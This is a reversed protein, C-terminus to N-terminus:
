GGMPVRDYAKKFDIWGVSLTRLGKFRADTIVMKDVALCDVCGRAGRRLTRQEQPLLDNAEVHATLSDALVATAFKYQTTLCAIPRYNGPDKAEGKKPILITRGTVLWDSFPIAANLMEEIVLRLAHGAEPFV